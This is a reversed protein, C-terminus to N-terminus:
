KDAKDQKQEWKKTRKNGPFKGKGGTLHSISDDHFIPYTGAKVNTMQKIPIIPIKTNKHYKRPRGRVTNSVISDPVQQIQSNGIIDQKIAVDPKANEFLWDIIKKKFM